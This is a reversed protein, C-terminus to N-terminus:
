VTSVLLTVRRHFFKIESLVTLSRQYNSRPARAEASLEVSSRYNKNAVEFKDCM